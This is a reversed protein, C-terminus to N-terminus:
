TFYWKFNQAFNFKLERLNQRFAKYFAKMNGALEQLFKYTAHIEHKSSENLNGSNEM